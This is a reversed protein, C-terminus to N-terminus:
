VRKQSGQGVFPQGHQALAGTTLAHRQAPQLRSNRWGVFRKVTPLAGPTQPRMIREQPGSIRYLYLADALPQAPEVTYFGETGPQIVDSCKGTVHPTDGHAM